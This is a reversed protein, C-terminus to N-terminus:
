ARESREPWANTCGIRLVIDGPPCIAPLNGALVSGVRKTAPVRLLLTGGDARQDFVETGPSLAQSLRVLTVRREREFSVANRGEIHASIAHWIGGTRCRAARGVASTVTLLVPIVM